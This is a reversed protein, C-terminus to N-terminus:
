REQETNSGLMTVCLLDVDIEEVLALDQVDHCATFWESSRRQERGDFDPTPEPTAGTGALADARDAYIDAIARTAVTMAHHAEEAKNTPAIEDLAAAFEDLSQEYAAYAASLRADDMGAWTARHADLEDHYAKMVPELEGFYSEPSRGGDGGCVVTLTALALL